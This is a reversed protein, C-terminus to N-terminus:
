VCISGFTCYTWKQHAGCARDHQQSTEKEWDIRDQKHQVVKQWIKKKETLRFNFRFYAPRSPIYWRLICRVEKRDSVIVQSMIHHATCWTFIIHHSSIHELYKNTVTVMQTKGMMNMKKRKKQRWKKQQGYVPLQQDESKEGGESKERERKEEPCM